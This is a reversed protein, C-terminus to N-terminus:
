EHTSPRLKYWTSLVYQPHYIKNKVKDLNKKKQWDIDNNTLNETKGTIDNRILTM